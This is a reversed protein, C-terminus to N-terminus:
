IKSCKKVEIKNDVNEKFIDFASEDLEYHVPVVVKPKIKNVFNAASIADMTYVGNIPIMAVECIINNNEELYDTDGAIYYIIGAIEIVYGVWVNEKLHYKKDKNYAYVCRFDMYDLDYDMGPEVILINEKSFGMETCSDYIDKPGIIKTYKNKLNLITNKDFHNDHNHTIFIYDADHKAEFDIPDFYIINDVDFRISNLKNIDYM